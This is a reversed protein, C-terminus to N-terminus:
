KKPEHGRSRVTNIQHHCNNGSFSESPFGDGESVNQFKAREQIVAVVEIEIRVSELSDNSFCLDEMMRHVLISM